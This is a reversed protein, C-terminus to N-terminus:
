WRGETFRFLHGVRIQTITKTHEGLLAETVQQFLMRQDSPAVGKAFLMM